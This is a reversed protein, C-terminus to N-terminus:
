DIQLEEKENFPELFPNSSREVGITTSAGHGPFVRTSPPLLILKEMISLIEKDYDGGELDTRGISGAFLTDGSLLIEDESNYFCVSGPSHGPTGIVKFEIGGINLIDNDKLPIYDWDTRVIPFGMHGSVKACSAFSATDDPHMYVPIDYEKQLNYVGFVHDFHAHTLLIACPALGENKIFSHFEENEEPTCNGPDVIIAQNKDKWIIRTKEGLLNFTFEQINM